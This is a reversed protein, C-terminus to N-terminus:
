QCPLCSSSPRCFVSQLVWQGNICKERYMEAGGTTYCDCCQGTPTVQFTGEECPPPGTGCDEECYTTVGDCTVYGRENIACNRSVASCVSGTCSIDPLADCDESCFDPPIPDGIGAVLIPALVQDVAANACEVPAPTELAPAPGLDVPASSLVLALSLTLAHLM